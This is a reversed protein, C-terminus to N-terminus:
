GGPKPDAPLLYMTKGGVEVVEISLKDVLQQLTTALRKIEDRQKERIANGKIVGDQHFRVIRDVDSKLCWEFGDLKMKRMDFRLIVDGM